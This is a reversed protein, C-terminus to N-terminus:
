GAAAGAARGALTIEDNEGELIRSVLEPLAVPELGREYDQGWGLYSLPLGTFGPLELLLGWRNSEDVKTFLLAHCGLDRLFMGWELGERRALTIPIVGLLLQPEAARVMQALQRGHEPWRPNRGPTDVLVLDVDKWGALAAPVQELACTASEAGLVRALIRSQEQAGPRVLDLNLLGIRCGHEARARAALKALVTTKGAGTPGVVMVRRDQPWRFLRVQGLRAQLSQRPDPSLLAELAFSLDVGQALLAPLLGPEWGGREPPLALIEVREPSQRTEVILAEPGLTKSVLALAQQTTAAVFARPRM